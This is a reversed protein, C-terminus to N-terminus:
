VAALEPVESSPLSGSSAAFYSFVGSLFGGVVGAVWCQRPRESLESQPKAPGGEDCAHRITLLHLSLFIPPTNFFVTQTSPLSVRGIRTKHWPSNMGSPIAVLAVLLAIEPEAHLKSRGLDSTVIQRISRVLVQGGFRIRGRQRIFKLEGTHSPIHLWLYAYGCEVSCRWQRCSDEPRM